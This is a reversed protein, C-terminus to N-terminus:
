QAHDLSINQLIAADMAKTSNARRKIPQFNERNEALKPGM